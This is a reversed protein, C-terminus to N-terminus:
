GLEEYTLGANWGSLSSAAAPLFLGLGSSASANMVIVEAPTPVWLYGNLVNFADSFLVTKAGVGENSSNVGCTGASGATGGAIVSVPDLLSTKSPTVSTLTPWTSAQTSLQVRQQASTASGSQGAWARLFRLSATAGPNVFVLTVAQNALTANSMPVNYARAM